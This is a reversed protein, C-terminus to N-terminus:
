LIRLVKLFDITIRATIGWLLEGEYPEYFIVPHVGGYQSEYMEERWNEPGGLWALPISFVRSVETQQIRLPYPWPLIGVVPTVRFDSVTVYDNLQGLIRVDGPRVGIEEYTERLATDVANQEGPEAMGGPFAVQGRHDTLEDSRRTFLLHWASEITVMPILVAAHRIPRRHNGFSVVENTLGTRLLKEIVEVPLNAASTRNVSM